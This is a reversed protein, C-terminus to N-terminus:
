LFNRCKKGGDYNGRYRDYRRKKYEEKIFFLNCTNINNSKNFHLLRDEAGALKKDASDVEREFYKVVRDTENVRLAKYDDMFV